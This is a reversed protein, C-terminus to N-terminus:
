TRQATTVERREKRKERQKAILKRKRWERTNRDAQLKKEIWTMVRGSLHSLGEAIMKTVGTRRKPTYVRSENANPTDYGALYMIIFLLYWGILLIYIRKCWEGLELVAEYTFWQTTISETGIELLMNFMYICAMIM